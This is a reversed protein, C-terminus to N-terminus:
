VQKALFQLVCLIKQPFSFLVSLDVCLFPIFSPLIFIKNKENM